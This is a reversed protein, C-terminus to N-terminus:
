KLGLNQSKEALEKSGTMIWWRTLTQASGDSCHEGSLILGGYMYISWIMNEPADPDQVGEYLVTGRGLDGQVRNAKLVSQMMGPFDGTVLDPLFSVHVTDTPKFYTKWHHWALGKPVYELFVRLKDGDFSLKKTQQYLGTGDKLWVPQQSEILEKNLKQNKRLRKPVGSKLNDLAQSHRGAFPLVTTLYHEVASKKGNCADCAPAQPLNNRDKKL